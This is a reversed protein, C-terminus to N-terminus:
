EPDPQNANRHNRNAEQISDWLVEHRIGEQLRTLYSQLNPYGFYDNAAICEMMEPETQIIQEPVYNHLGYTVQSCAHMTNLIAALVHSREELSFTAELSFRDDKNSVFRYHYDEMLTYFLNKDSTDSTDYFETEDSVYSEAVMKFLEERIHLKGECDKGVFLHKLMPSHFDYAKMGAVSLAQRYEKGIKRLVAKNIQPEKDFGFVRVLQELFELDYFLLWTLSSKDDNFLYKNYSDVAVPLYTQYHNDDFKLFMFSTNARFILNYTPSFVLFGETLGDGEGRDNFMEYKVYDKKVTMKPCPNHLDIGFFTKLKQAFVEDSVPKYGKLSLWYSFYPFILPMFEYTYEMWFSSKNARERDIYELLNEKGPFDVTDLAVGDKVEKMEEQKIETNNSIIEKSIMETNNSIIEANNTIIETNNSIIEKSETQKKCGFVISSLIINWVVYKKYNM